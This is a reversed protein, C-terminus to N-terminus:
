HLIAVKFFGGNKLNSHHSFQPITVCIECALFGPVYGQFNVSDHYYESTAVIGHSYSSKKTSFSLWLKIEHM